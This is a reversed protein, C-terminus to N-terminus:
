HKLDLHARFLDDLVKHQANFWKKIESQKRVNESREPGVGVGQLEADLCNLDIAKSYLEKDFYTAIAEGVIFQAGRTKHLFEFTVADTAKGSTLIRGILERAAEYYVYRRDFLDLKLKNRNTQWQQWAILLALIAITPTLLASLVTVWAPVTPAGM